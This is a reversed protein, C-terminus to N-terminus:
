DKNANPLTYRVGLFGSVYQDVAGGAIAQTNPDACNDTQPTMPSVCRNPIPNFNFAYRTLDVGGVLDLHPVITYGLLLGAELAQTKTNPFWDRKLGGTDSVLRTGVHFGITLDDFHFRAEGGLKVFKYSVDPVLPASEDGLLNFVQQGYAAILGLEHAALPIRGRLGVYFQSARTTLELQSPTNEAFVSKTAFNVEYGGTIGINAAPGTGAFALPYLTGDIFVAPGLPLQYTLPSPYGAGPFLQAPTDHYDFSRHVARLGATVELPSPGAHGEAAAPAEAKGEDEDKKEGKDEEEDKDKDQDSDEGKAPKEEKSKAPKVEKEPAASDDDSAASGAKGQSIADAVSVTLTADISKSLKASSDGKIEVDQILAGDAGNHVSLVLGSKKVTGVLVVSAGASAKAYSKDDAGPKVSSSDSVEYEGDDKLAAIVAKRAQDAKPGDFGGVLVKKKEAGRKKSSSDAKKGKAVALPASLAVAIGLSLGILGRVTVATKRM